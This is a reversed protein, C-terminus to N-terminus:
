KTNIRQLMGRLVYRLIGGNRWYDVERETDLRSQLTIHRANGNARHIICEVTAAPSVEGTLGVIDFTESGDLELTQRNEGGMFQLPLVGMGILNSRHIREFGEALVARVGLLQVGKAAWDRSSGAGYDKGAVVVVPVGDQAYRAAAHHVNMEEDSPLHRTWGGRRQPTLENRLHINAFTGRLMVDHNVRRAAYSSFDQPAVGKEILYRGAATDAGFAAVPSIHDTTISDGLMALIRAGRVDQMAPPTVAMDDLFPPQRIYESTPGWEFRDGDPVELARWREDGQLVDAYRRKFMDADISSDALAQVEQPTPWLEALFVPKGDRDTGLADTELNLDLNGALAYAVVLPPSAIFNLRCQQHVRGDFNRNSSVVAAVVLSDDDIATAVPEALPGSNGMCTMCGFGTVQFGLADLAPQLGAKDLYDAVVRSGPSLSTKVWPRPQMGREHARQAVIGAALMSAPNSTNTCSTIAALVVDGHQLKHSANDQEAGATEKRSKGASTVPVTSATYEDIASRAAHAVGSLAVRDQPRRPGAVCSEVTSLDLEIIESYVPTPTDADRWMGQARAYAEVCAIRHEDRGTLRLFELTKVDIPFFGMTAGYEPSMNACTARDPVPLEDVGPGFYEVFKQVVGAARLRETITLVLDTATIGSRLAGSMRVGVVEPILLSVSQGLMASAAEIGGVGWGLVALSNVMPTHSDMGLLTDPVLREGGEHSQTAVVSALHEVNIQHCIGAGPPMIRVNEFAGQAWRLFSYREANREYELDANRQLADATGAYDVVVSHDIAMDVTIRPNVRSVDGGLAQMADRMAALDALLPVGSSDPMLIRVPHFAVDRDTRGNKAWDAFAEIDARTVVDGDEHRLVNELLVKLSYPLREIGSLGAEAAAPLSFYEYSRGDVDLTRLANFSHSTTM